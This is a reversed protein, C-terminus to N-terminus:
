ISLTGGGGRELYDKSELVGGEGGGNEGGDPFEAEEVLM